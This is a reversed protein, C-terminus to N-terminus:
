VQICWSLRVKQANVGTHVLKIKGEPCKCRYEGIGGEKCTGGNICQNSPCERVYTGCLSGEYGEVCCCTANWCTGGNKCPGPAPCVPDVVQHLDRDKCEAGKYGVNCIKEGTAPHCTYHGDCSDTPRCQEAVAVYSM